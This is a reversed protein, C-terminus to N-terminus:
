GVSISKQQFHLRKSYIWEFKCIKGCLVFIKWYGASSVITWVTELSRSFCPFRLSVFYLGCVFLFSVGLGFQGSIWRRWVKQMILCKACTKYIYWSWLQRPLLTAWKQFVTCKELSWQLTRNQILNNHQTNNADKVIFIRVLLDFSSNIACGCFM